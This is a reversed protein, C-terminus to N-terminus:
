PGQKRFSHASLEISRFSASALDKYPGPALGNEGEGKERRRREWIRYAGFGGAVALIGSGVVLLAMRAKDMRGTEKKGDGGQVIVKFYGYKSDDGEVVTEIPYDMTYCYGTTNSYIAGWCSCNKECIGECEELSGMKTFGLLDKNALDIGQRRVVSYGDGNNGDSRCLDGSSTEKCGDTGNVLCTCEPQEGARCIGYPGCTTPLECPDQVTTYDLIWASNNWYYARFNGDNELTMRRFVHLGLNFSDFAVVDAPPGEKQYLGLFGDPEVRAYIPGGGQTIEAKAELATHKFYMPSSRGQGFEMYLSFYNTGLSMFFQQNPSFLKAYSTFNQNEVITDTPFDFSQWVLSNPNGTKQIQLNSSNLLLVRDGPNSDTSWLVTGSKPDSLLLSGNFSLSLSGTWPAPNSPMARWLTLSSPLHLVALDLLTSNIKLFGLSFIGTPDSLLPQFQSYSDDHKASFGKIIEKTPPDSAKALSISSAVIIIISLLSWARTLLASTEM